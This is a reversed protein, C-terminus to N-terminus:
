SRIRRFGGEHCSCGGRLWKWYRFMGPTPWSGVHHREESSKNRSQLCYTVPQTCIRKAVGAIADCLSTSTALPKGKPYLSKLINLLSEITGEKTQIVDELKLPLGSTNQSLFNLAGHVNGLFMKKSLAWSVAEPTMRTDTTPLHSQICRGETVQVEIEGKKWSELRRQLCFSCNFNICDGRGVTYDAM